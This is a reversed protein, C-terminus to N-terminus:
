KIQRNKNRPSYLYLHKRSKGSLILDIQSRTLGIVKSVDRWEDVKDM